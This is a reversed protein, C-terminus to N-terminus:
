LIRKGLYRKSQRNRKELELPIRVLIESISLGEEFCIPNSQMLQEAVLDMNKHELIRRRIDGETITGILQELDNVLLAIGTPLGLKSANNFLTYLDMLSTEKTCYLEKVLSMNNNKVKKDEM